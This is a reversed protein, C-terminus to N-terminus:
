WEGALGRKGQRFEEIRKKTAPSLNEPLEDLEFWRASDIEWREKHYFSETEAVFIYFTDNRGNEKFVYTGLMYNIRVNSIHLEEELERKLGDEPLENKALKGGPLSWYPVGINRVLLVEGKHILVARTNITKRNFFRFYFRLLPHTNHYALRKFLKKLVSAM